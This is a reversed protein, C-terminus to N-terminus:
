DYPGYVEEPLGVHIRHLLEDDVRPDAAIAQTRKVLTRPGLVAGPRQPDDLYDTELMFGRKNAHLQDLLVPLTNKGLIVSPILGDLTVESIDPPAHHRILLDRKLGAKDAIAGLDHYVDAGGAEVHLQLPLSEKAALSMTESLLENSVEAIEATVDWHPRGVEGLGVARGNQCHQLAADISEWYVEKAREIGNAGEQVWSEAQHVFTAPHPGLIVRVRLSTQSRVQEAMNLTKQYADDIDSRTEPLKSFNPVHVLVIDTGGSKEFLKAASIGLGDERLHIHNDLIPGNWRGNHLM